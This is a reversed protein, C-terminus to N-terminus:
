LQSMVPQTFRVTAMMVENKHRELLRSAADWARLLETSRASGDHLLVAVYELGSISVEFNHPELVLVDAAAAAALFLFGTCLVRMACMFQYM